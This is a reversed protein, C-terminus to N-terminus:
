FVLNKAYEPGEFTFKLYYIRSSVDCSKKRARIITEKM